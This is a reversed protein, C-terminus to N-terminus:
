WSDDCGFEEDDCGREWQRVKDEQVQVTKRVLMDYGTLAAFPAFQAARKLKAMRVRNKPEPRPMHLIGAYKRMDDQVIM